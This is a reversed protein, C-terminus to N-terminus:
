RILVLFRLLATKPLMYYTFLFVCFKGNNWGNKKNRLFEELFLFVIFPVVLFQMVFDCNRIFHALRKM